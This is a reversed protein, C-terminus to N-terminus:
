TIVKKKKSVYVKSLVSRFLIGKIGREKNLCTHSYIASLQLYTLVSNLVTKQTCSTGSLFELVHQQIQTYKEEVM